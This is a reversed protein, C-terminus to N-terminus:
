QVGGGDKWDGRVCDKGMFGGDEEGKLPHLAKQNDGWRSVDLRQLAIHM